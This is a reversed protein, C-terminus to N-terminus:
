ASHIAEEAMQRSGYVKPACEIRRSTQNKNQEEKM